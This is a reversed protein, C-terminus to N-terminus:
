RGIPVCPSPSPLDVVFANRVALQEFISKMEGFDALFIVNKGRTENIREVFLDPFGDKFEKWRVTGPEFLVQSAMAHRLPEMEKACYVVTGSSSM